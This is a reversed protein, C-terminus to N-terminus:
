RLAAAIFPAPPLACMVQLIDAPRPESELFRILADPPVRDFLRTFYAPVGEPHRTMARLFVRDMWALLKSEHTIAPDPSRHQSWYQTMAESAREIRSFAYGSSPRIAGAATGWPIIRNKIKLDRLLRTPYDSASTDGGFCGLDSYGMDDLRRLWDFRRVMRASRRCMGCRDDYIVIPKDM